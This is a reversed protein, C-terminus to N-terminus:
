FSRQRGDFEWKELFSNPVSDHHISLFLDASANNARAVRQGLSRRAHGGTILLMTKEFGAETLKESILRALRLNFDYERSGRAGIAGPSEATHGVDIVARFAAR